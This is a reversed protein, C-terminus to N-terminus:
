AVGAGTGVWYYGKKQIEQEIFAEQLPPYTGDGKQFQDTLTWQGGRCLQDTAQQPITSPDPDATIIQTADDKSCDFVYFDM